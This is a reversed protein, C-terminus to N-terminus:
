SGVPRSAVLVPANSSRLVEATTSRAFVESFPHRDTSAVAVISYPLDQVLDVIAVPPDTHEIVLDIVARGDEQLRNAVDRLYSLTDLGDHSLTGTVESAEVPYVVHALILKRGTLTAWRTAWLLIAEGEATGDLCAIIRRIPQDDQLGCRPGILALAQRSHAVVDTAVSGLLTRVLPRRGRTTLCLLIEPHEDDFRGLAAAADDDDIVVIEDVGGVRDKAAELMEAARRREGAPAVTVLSLEAGHLKAIRRAPGVADIARGSGDLAVAVGRYPSPALPTV